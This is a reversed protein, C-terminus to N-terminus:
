NQHTNEIYDGDNVDGQIYIEIKTEKSRTLSLDKIQQETIKM